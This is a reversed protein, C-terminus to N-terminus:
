KENAAIVGWAAFLTDFSFFRKSLWGSGKVLNKKLVAPNFVLRPTKLFLVNRKTDRWDWKHLPKLLLIHSNLWHKGKVERVAQVFDKWTAV